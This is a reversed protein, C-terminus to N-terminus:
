TLLVLLSPIPFKQSQFSVGGGGAVGFFLHQYLSVFLPSLLHMPLYNVDGPGFM